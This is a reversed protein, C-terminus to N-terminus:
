QNTPQAHRVPRHRRRPKIYTGDRNDEHYRERWYKLDRVHRAAKLKRGREDRANFRSNSDGKLLTLPEPKPPIALPTVIDQKPKCFPCKIRKRPTYYGLRHPDYEIPFGLRDRMFEIDRHISKTSIELARALDTANCFTGGVVCAWITRMRDLPPRFQGSPKSTKRRSM